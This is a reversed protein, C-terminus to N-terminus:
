TSCMERVRSTGSAFYSRIVKSLMSQPLITPEPSFGKPATEQFNSGIDLRPGRPLDDPHLNENTNGLGSMKRLPWPPAPKRHPAIMRGTAWDTLDSSITRYRFDDRVHCHGPLIGVDEDTASLYVLWLASPTPPQPRREGLLVLFVPSWLLFTSLHSGIVTTM